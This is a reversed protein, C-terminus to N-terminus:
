QNFLFIISRYFKIAGIISTIDLRENAAHFLTPDSLTPNIRYINSSIDSYWHSDTNGILVSDYVDINDGYGAHVSRQIVSYALNDIASYPTPEMSSGWTFVIRPDNVVAVNHAKVSAISNYPSIRQNITATATAALVNPKTGGSVMTVATTTTRMANLIGISEIEQETFLDLFSTTNDPMPMQHTELATIAKALIGIASENDPMSSHGSRGHATMTTYLFGKESPGILAIPNKFRSGFMGAAFIGIGEDLVMEATINRSKILASIHSHGNAGGIEEDHGIALFVTRKPEFGHGLLCEVAELSGMVTIKNDISGRGWVTTGNEIYGSFPDHLWKQDTVPVVDYHANIIIPNLSPDSGKWEYLLSYTNVVTRELTKHTLPYAVKLYDILGTYNGLRDAMEEPSM